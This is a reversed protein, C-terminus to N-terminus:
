AAGADPDANTYVRTDAIARTMVFGRAILHDHMIPNTYIITITRPVTALSALIRDVVAAFVDDKFPNYLYIVSADPVVMFSAADVTVLDVEARLHYRAARINAAAIRNLASSLEVGIVRKFPFLAAVLLARGKGSGYDIFVDEESVSLGRLVRWLQVLAPWPTAVYGGGAEPGFELDVHGVMRATEIGLVRDVLDSVLRSASQWPQAGSARVAAACVLGFIMVAPLIVQVRVFSSPLWKLM